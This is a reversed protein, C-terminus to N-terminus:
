FRLHFNKNAVFIMKVYIGLRPRQGPFEARTSSSNWVSHFCQIKKVERRHFESTQFPRGKLDHLALQSWGLALVWVPPVPGSGLM